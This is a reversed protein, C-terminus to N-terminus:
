NCYKAAEDESLILIRQCNECKIIDNCAMVNNVVNPPLLMDCGLCMSSEVEAIATDRTYILIREYTEVVLPELEALLEQKARKEAELQENLEAYKKDMQASFDAYEKEAKELERGAESLEGRSKDVEELSKLVTTELESKKENLIAIQHNFAAMEANSKAQNRQILLKEMREEIDKLELDASDGALQTDKLKAECEKIGDRATDIIVERDHKRRPVEEMRAIIDQIQIDKEKLKRLTEPNFKM